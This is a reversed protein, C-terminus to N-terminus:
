KRVDRCENVVHCSLASGLAQGFRANGEISNLSDFRSMAIM